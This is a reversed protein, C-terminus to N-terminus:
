LTFCRNLEAGLTSRELIQAENSTDSPCRFTFTCELENFYTFRLNLEWQTTGLTFSISVLASRANAPPDFILRHTHSLALLRLLPQAGVPYNGFHFMRISSSGIKQNIVLKTDLM